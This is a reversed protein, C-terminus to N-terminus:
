WDAAYGDYPQYTVIQPSSYPRTGCFSTARRRKELFRAFGFDALHLDGNGDILINELKIDRHVIEHRHLYNVAEILQRFLRAGMPAERIAGEKLIHQLLTGRTCFESVIIIKTPSPSEIHLCKLLHPHRVKNTVELERPLFKDAIHAPLAKRNIVKVAVLGRYRQSYTRFVVSHNTSFIPPESLDAGLGFRLSPLLTEVSPSVRTAM